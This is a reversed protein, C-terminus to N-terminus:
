QLNIQPNPVVPVAAVYCQTLMVVTTTHYPIIHGSLAVIRNNFARQQRSLVSNATFLRHQLQLLVVQAADPLDLLVQQVTSCLLPVVPSSQVAFSHLTIEYPTTSATSM